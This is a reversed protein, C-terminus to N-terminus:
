AILINKQLYFLGPFIGAKKVKLLNQNIERVEDLLRKKVANDDSAQGARIFYSKAKALDPRVGAGLVKGDRKTIYAWCKLLLCACDAIMRKILSLLGTRYQKTRVKQIVLYDM